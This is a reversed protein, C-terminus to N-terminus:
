GGALRLIVDAARETGPDARLRRSVDALRARLADDALLADIAAPLKADAFGYTDLRRGFGAEAVRTANDHQDWFIPLCLMPRGFQFWETLTNSGAPPARRDQPLVEAGV